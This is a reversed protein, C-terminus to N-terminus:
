KKKTAAIEEGKHSKQIAAIEGDIQSIRIESPFRTFYEAAKEEPNEDIINEILININQQLATGIVEWQKSDPCPSSEFNYVIFGNPMLIPHLYNM